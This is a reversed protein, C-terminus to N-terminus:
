VGSADRQLQGGSSERGPSGHRSECAKAEKRTRRRSGGARLSRTIRSRKGGRALEKGRGVRLHVSVCSGHRLNGATALSAGPDCERTALFGGKGKVGLEGTLLRCARKSANSGGPTRESAVGHGPWPSTAADTSEQANGRWLTSWGRNRTRDRVDAATTPTRAGAAVTESFGAM